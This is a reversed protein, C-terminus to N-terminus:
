KNAPAKKKKDEVDWMVAEKLYSRITDDTVGIGALETDNAMDSPASSKKSKPDYKYSTIAIGLLIRLLSKREKTSFSEETNKAPFQVEGFHYASKLGCAALWRAIEARTFRQTSFGSHEESTLWKSLGAAEDIEFQGLAEAVGISCLLEDQSAVGIEGWNFPAGDPFTHWKRTANHASELRRYIPANQSNESGTKSPDEGLVLAAVHIGTFETEIDWHSLDRVSQKQSKM